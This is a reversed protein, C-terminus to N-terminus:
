SFWRIQPTNLNIESDRMYVQTNSLILLLLAYIQIAKFSFFFTPSRGNEEVFEEYNPNPRSHAGFM